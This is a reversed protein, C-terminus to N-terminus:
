KIGSIRRNISEAYSHYYFHTVGSLKKQNLYLREKGLSFEFQRV